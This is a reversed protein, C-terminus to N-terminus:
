PAAMQGISARLRFRLVSRRRKVGAYRNGIQMIANIAVVLKRRHWCECLDSKDLQRQGLDRPVAGAMRVYAVQLRSSNFHRCACLQDPVGIQDRREAHIAVRYCPAVNRRLRKFGGIYRRLTCHNDYDQM